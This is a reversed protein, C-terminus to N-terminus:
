IYVFAFEKFCAVFFLLPLFSSSFDSDWSGVGLVLPESRRFLERFSSARLSIMFSYSICTLRYAACLLNQYWVLKPGYNVQAKKVFADVANM